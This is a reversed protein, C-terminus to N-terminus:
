ENESESEKTTNEDTLVDEVASNEEYGKNTEMPYEINVAELEEITQASNIANIYTLNLGGQGWIAMTLKAIEAGLALIDGKTCELPENNKGNWVITEDDGLTAAIFQLNTKQDVDSDFLINKYYVGANLREDRKQTNELLKQNKAENLQKEIYEPTDAFEFNVIPRETELIKLGKYQPMFAITNQLKQKDEDFLLIKNDKEIYYNTM